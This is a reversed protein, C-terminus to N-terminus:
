AALEEEASHISQRTHGMLDVSESQYKQENEWVQQM